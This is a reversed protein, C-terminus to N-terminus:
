VVRWEEGCENEVGASCACQGRLGEENV